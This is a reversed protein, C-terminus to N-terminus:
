QAAESWFITVTCAGDRAFRAEFDAGLQRASEAIKEFDIHRALDPPFQLVRAIQRTEPATLILPMRAPADAPTPRSM